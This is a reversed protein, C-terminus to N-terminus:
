IVTGTLSSGSFSDGPSRKNEVQMHRVFVLIRESNHSKKSIANSVLNASMYDSVNEEDVSMLRDGPVIAEGLPSTKKITEVAPFGGDHKEIVIGLKGPPAICIIKKSHSGDPNRFIKEQIVPSTEVSSRNTVSPMTPAKNNQGSQTPHTNTGLSTMNSQFGVGMNPTYAKPLHM